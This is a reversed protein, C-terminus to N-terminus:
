GFTLTAVDFSLETGSASSLTLTEGDAGTITLAGPSGPAFYRGSSLLNAHDASWTVVLVFGGDAQDLLGGAYVETIGADTQEYWDNSWTADGGGPPGLDSAVIFGNGAPTEQYPSYPSDEPALTSFGANPDKSGVRSAAAALSAYYDEIAQKEPALSETAGASEGAAVAARPGAAVNTRAAVVVVLGAILISELALVVGRGVRTMHSSGPKANITTRARRSLM